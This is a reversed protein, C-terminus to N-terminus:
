RRSPLGERNTTVSRRSGGGGARAAGHSIPRRIIRTPQSYSHSSAGYHPRYVPVHEQNATPFEPQRFPPSPIPPGPLPAGGGGSNTNRYLPLGANHSTPLSPSHYPPQPGAYNPPYFPRVPSVVPNGFGGPLYGAWNPPSYSLPPSRPPPPPLCKRSRQSVGVGCTQSCESWEGWVSWVGEAPDLDFAQRSRRGAAQCVCFCLTPCNFLPGM